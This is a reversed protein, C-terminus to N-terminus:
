RTIVPAKGMNVIWLILTVKIRDVGPASTKRTGTYLHYNLKIGYMTVVIKEYDLFVETHQTLFSVDGLESGKWCIMKLRVLEVM